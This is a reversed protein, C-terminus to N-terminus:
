AAERLSIFGEWPQPIRTVFPRKPGRPWLHSNSKTKVLSGRVTRDTTTVAGPLRASAAQPLGQSRGWGRITEM